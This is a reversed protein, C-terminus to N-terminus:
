RETSARQTVAVPEQVESVPEGSETPAHPEDVRLRPPPSDSLLRAVSVEALLLEAREADIRLLQAVRQADLAGLVEQADALAGTQARHLEEGRAGRAAAARVLGWAGGALPVACALLTMLTAVLGPSAALLVLSAALLSLGSLGLLALGAASLLLHKTHESKARELAERTGASLVVGPADVPIRPGGCVLCRFGLAAHPEVDAVVNCHPCSEAGQM